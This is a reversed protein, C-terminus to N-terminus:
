ETTHIIIINTYFNNKNILKKKSNNTSHSSSSIKCIKVHGEHLFFNGVEAKVEKLSLTDLMFLM